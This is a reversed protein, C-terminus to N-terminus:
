THNYWVGPNIVRPDIKVFAQRIFALQEDCLTVTRETQDANSDLQTINDCGLVATSVDPVSLVFSLALADPALDFERCLQLYQRLSPACFDLRTDLEEPTQFVLGQLFVSRAFIIM